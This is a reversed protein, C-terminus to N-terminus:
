DRRLPVREKTVGDKTIVFIDVNDGTQIERETAGVFIDKVLAVVQDKSLPVRPIDPSKTGGHMAHTDVVNYILM